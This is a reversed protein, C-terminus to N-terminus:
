QVPASRYAVQPTYLPRVRISQNETVGLLTIGKEDLPVTGLTVEPDAVLWGRLPAGIDDHLEIKQGVELSAGVIDDPHLRITRKKSPGSDVYPDATCRVTKLSPRGASIDNRRKITAEEAIDGNTEFCVGYVRVAMEQSVIDNQVDRRVDQPDRTLPDGYGGGAASQLIVTDGESLPHGGVKGPSDFRHETGDASIVYSDVPAGTEGGHIGFPPMIAGDSLLSYLANGRTLRLAR